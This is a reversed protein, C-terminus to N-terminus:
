QKNICYKDSSSKDHRSLAVYMFGENSRYRLVASPPLNDGSRRELLPQIVQIM